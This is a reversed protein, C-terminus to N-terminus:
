ISAADIRVRRSAKQKTFSAYRWWADVSSSWCWIWPTPPNTQSSNCLLLYRKVATPCCCCATTTLPTSSPWGPRGMFRLFLVGVAQKSTNFFWSWSTISSQANLIKKLKIWCRCSFRQNYEYITGLTPRAPERCCHQTYYISQLTLININSIPVSIIGSWWEGKKDKEWSVRTCTTNIHRYKHPGSLAQESLRNACRLALAQDTISRVSAADWEPDSLHM